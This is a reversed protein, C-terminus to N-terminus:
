AASGILRIKGAREARIRNLREAREQECRQLYEECGRIVPPVHEPQEQMVPRLAYRYEDAIRRVRIENRWNKKM